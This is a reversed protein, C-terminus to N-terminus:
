GLYSLEKKAKQETADKSKEMLTKIQEEFQEARKILPKPDVKLDLYKDLVEIIKAAARSDPLSSHTEAFICSIPLSKKLMLSGTVGLIIGDSLKKLGTKKEINKANTESIYFAGSSESQSGVGEICIVEKATLLKALEVVKDAVLWEYGTVSTMAHLIVLNYKKSYFIGIPDIVRGSHVLVTPPVEKMVIKGIQDADLHTALYETVITSVLGFGPFGEIITVNKPKKELVIDM